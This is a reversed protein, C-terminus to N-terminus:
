GCHRWFYFTIHTEFNQVYVEKDKSLQAASSRGKVVVVVVVVVVYGKTGLL